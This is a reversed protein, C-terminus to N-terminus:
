TTKRLVIFRSDLEVFKLDYKEAIFHFTEATFIFIHTPDRVYAWKSFDKDPTYLLTMLILEGGPKLLGLLQKIIKAPYQLHEFVECSFIYDYEIGKLVASNPAFFPDYLNVKYGKNELVHTIVPGTGSGFDLGITDTPYYKSVHEWIPSTFKQYRPDDVDNNHKEYVVKEEEESIYSDDSKVYSHCTKCRFFSLAMREDLKTQCLPCNM